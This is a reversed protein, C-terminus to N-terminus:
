NKYAAIMATIWAKVITKSIGYYMTALYVARFIGATTAVKYFYQQTMEKPMTTMTYQTANNTEIYHNHESALIFDLTKTIL